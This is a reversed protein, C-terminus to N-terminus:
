YKQANNHCRCHEFCITKPRNEADARQLHHEFSQQNAYQDTRRHTRHANEDHVASHLFTASIAKHGTGACRQAVNEIGQYCTQTHRKDHIEDVVVLVKEYQFENTTGQQHNEAYIHVPGVGCASEPWGMLLAFACQKVVENRTEQEREGVRKDDEKECRGVGNEGKHHGFVQEFHTQTVQTDDRASQEPPQPQRIKHFAKTLVEGHPAHAAHVVGYANDDHDYTHYVRKYGKEMKGEGM